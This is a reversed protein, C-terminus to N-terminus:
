EEEEFTNKINQAWELCVTIIEIVSCDKVMKPDSLGRRSLEGKIHMLHTIDKQLRLPAAHAFKQLIKDPIDELYRQQGNRLTLIYKM